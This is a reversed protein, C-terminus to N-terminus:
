DFIHSNQNYECTCEYLLIAGLHINLSDLFGSVGVALINEYMTRQQVPQNFRVGGVVGWHYSGGFNMALISAGNEDSGCNCGTAILNGGTTIGIYSVPAQSLSSNSTLNFTDVTM